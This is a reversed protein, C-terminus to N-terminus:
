IYIDNLFSKEDKKKKNKIFRKYGADMDEISLETKNGETAGYIRRGHSIKVHQM